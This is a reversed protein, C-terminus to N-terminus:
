DTTGAAPDLLRAVTSALEGFLFLTREDFPGPLDCYVNISGLVRESSVLPLSMLSVINLPRVAKVWRRWRTERSLDAVRVPTVQRCADLCPGDNFFYQLADAELVVDATAAYSTPGGPQDILTLGAGIANPVANLSLTTLIKVASGGTDQGLLVASMRTALDGLEDAIHAPRLAVITM